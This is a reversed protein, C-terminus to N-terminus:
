RGARRVDNTVRVQGTTADVRAMRPVFETQSGSEYRNVRFAQVLAVVEDGM